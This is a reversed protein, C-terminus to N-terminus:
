VDDGNETNKVAMRSLKAKFLEPGLGISRLSIKDMQIAYGLRCDFTIHQDPQIIHMNYQRHNVAFTDSCLYGMSYCRRWNAYVKRMDDRSLSFLGTSQNLKDFFNEMYWAVNFDFTPFKYVCMVYASDKPYKALTTSVASTVADLTLSSQIKIGNPTYVVAIIPVNNNTAKSFLVM